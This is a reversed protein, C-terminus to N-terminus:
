IELVGPVYWSNYLCNFLFNTVYDHPCHKETPYSQTLTTGLEEGEYREKEEWTLFWARM